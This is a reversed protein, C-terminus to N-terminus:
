EVPLLVEDAAMPMQEEEAPVPGATSGPTSAVTWTFPLNSLCLGRGMGFASAGWEGMHSLCQDRRAVRQLRVLDPQARTEELELALLLLAPQAACACRVLQLPQPLQRRLQLAGKGWVREVDGSIGGGQLRRGRM